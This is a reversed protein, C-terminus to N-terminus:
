GSMRPWRTAAMGYQYFAVEPVITSTPAILALAEAFVDAQSSNSALAAATAAAVGGGAPTNAPPAPAAPPAPRETPLTAHRRTLAVQLGPLAILEDFRPTPLSALEAHADALPAALADADPEADTCLAVIAALSRHSSTM